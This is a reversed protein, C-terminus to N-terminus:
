EEGDEHIAARVEEEVLHDRIGVVHEPDGVDLRRVAGGGRDGCSHGPRLYPYDGVNMWIISIPSISEVVERDGDILKYRACLGHVLAPRLQAGDVKGR